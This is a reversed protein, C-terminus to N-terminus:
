EYGFELGLWCGDVEGAFEGGEGSDECEGAADAAGRKGKFCQEFGLCLIWGRGDSCDTTLIVYNGEM